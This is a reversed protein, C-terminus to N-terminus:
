RAPKPCAFLRTCDQEHSLGYITLHTIDVIIIREIRNTPGSPSPTLRSLRGLPREYLCLNKFPGVSSVLGRSFPPFRITLFPSDKQVGWRENGLEEVLTAGM